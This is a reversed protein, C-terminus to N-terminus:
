LAFTKIRDTDIELGLGPGTPMTIHGDKFELPEKFITNLEPRVGTFEQPKNATQISAVVHLSAATGITPQTQHPVFDKPFTDSLVAIKRMETIGGCNIVDPQ